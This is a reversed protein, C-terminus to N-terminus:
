SNTGVAGATDQMSIESIQITKMINPQHGYLQEKIPHQKRSKNLVTWLMKTYKGDLKKEM